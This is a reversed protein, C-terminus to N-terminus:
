SLFIYKIKYNMRRVLKLPSPGFKLDALTSPQRLAALVLGALVVVLGIPVGEL